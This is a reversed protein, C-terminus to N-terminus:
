VRANTRYMYFAYRASAAIIVIRETDRLRTADDLLSILQSVVRTSQLYSVGYMIICYYVVTNM